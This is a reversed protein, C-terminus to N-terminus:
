KPFLRYPKKEFGLRAIQSKSQIGNPLIIPIYLYLNFRANVDLGAGFTLDGYIDKTSITGNYPLTGVEFGLEIAPGVSIGGGILDCILLEPGFSLSPTISIGIKANQVLVGKRIDGIVGAYYVLDNDMKWDLKSRVEIGSPIQITTWLIKIKTYKIGYNLTYEFGAAYFATFGAYVTTVLDGSAYVSIPVDLYGNFTLKIYIVGITIPPSEFLKLSVSIPVTTKRIEATSTTNSSFLTKSLAAGTEGTAYIGVSVGSSVNGWTISFYGFVGPQLDFKDSISLPANGTGKSVIPMKMVNYEKEWLVEEASGITVPLGLSRKWKDFNFTKKTLKRYKSFKEDIDAKKSQYDTYSSAEMAGRAQQNQNEDEYSSNPDAINASALPLIETIESGTSNTSPCDDEYIKELTLRNLKILEEQSMATAQALYFDLESQPIETDMEKLISAVLGTYKLVNNLCLVIDAPVSEQGTSFQTRVVTPLMNFLAVASYEGSFEDTSFYFSTDNIPKVLELDTEDISRALRYKGGSGVFRQYEGRQADLVYDGKVIGQVAARNTTPGDYKSVLWKDNPNIGMLGSPYVGRSYQEPLVAFMSTRLEEQSSLFTLYIAEEFGQRKRIPRVYSIDKVGDGNIDLEENLRIMHVSYRFVRGDISYENYGFGVHEKDISNITIYGYQSEDRIDSFVPIDGQYEVAVTGLRVAIRVGKALQGSSPQDPNYLVSGGMFGQRSISTYTLQESIDTLAVEQPNQFPFACSVFLAVLLIGAGLPYFIKNAHFRMIDGSFLILITLYV